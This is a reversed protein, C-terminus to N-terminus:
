PTPQGPMTFCGADLTVSAGTAAIVGNCTPLTPAPQNVPEATLLPPNGAIVSSELTNDEYLVTIIDTNFGGTLTAGNAPNVTTVISGLQSGPVVPPLVTFTNPFITATGPRNVASVGAATNPIIIGAQPIGEGAQMLDRVIFHMGARLNQQLDAELAIGSTVRQAQVIVATAGAVVIILISMAVMLEILSFGNERKM